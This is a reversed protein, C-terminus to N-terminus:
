SDGGPSQRWIVRNLNPDFVQSMRQVMPPKPGTWMAPILAYRALTGPHSPKAVRLYGAHHLNKLYDRVYSRTPGSTEDTCATVIEDATFTGLIKISRWVRESKTPPVISGDTRVRPTEHGMDRVLRYRKGDRELIGARTLGQLFVRISRQDMDSDLHLDRFTFNRRERIEAWLADRDRPLDAARTENIPSRAM